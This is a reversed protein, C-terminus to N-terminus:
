LATDIGLAVTGLVWKQPPAKVQHTCGAKEILTLAQDLKSLLTSNVPKTFFVLYTFTGSSVGGLTTSIGLYCRGLVFGQRFVNRTVIPTSGVISKSLDLVDPVSMSFRRNFKTLLESVRQALPVNNKIFGFYELEWDSIGLADVTYPYTNSRLEEILTKLRVLQRAFVLNLIQNLTSGIQITTTSSYDPNFVPHDTRSLLEYYKQEKTSM